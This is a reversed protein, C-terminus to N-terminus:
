KAGATDPVVWVSDWAVCQDMPMLMMADGVPMPQLVTTTEICEYHWHPGSPECALAGVALLVLLGRM